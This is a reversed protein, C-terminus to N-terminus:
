SDWLLLGVVDPGVDIFAEWVVLNNVMMYRPQAAVAFSNETYRAKEMGESIYNELM